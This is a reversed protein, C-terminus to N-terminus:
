LARSRILFSEHARAAVRIRDSLEDLKEDMFEVPGEGMFNFYDRAAAVALFAVGTAIQPRPNRWAFSPTFTGEDHNTDLQFELLDGWNGHVSSSPGGFTGLYGGDLGVAKAREFLNKDAWNKPRSSSLNELRAGSARVVKAISNLMRTHVPLPDGEGMDSHIRDHLRKEQRLSYAIYSDFVAPDNAFKILYRLNVICEFALRAVIFTIERRHQCIQDLLALILKYLRVLHGGLVAQNRDWRGTAAPLLNAAVCIYSGVEILLEVTLGNFDEESTFGELRQPSVDATKISDIQEIFAIANEGPDTSTM